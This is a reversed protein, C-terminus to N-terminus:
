FFRLNLGTPCNCAILEMVAEPAPSTDGWDIVLQRDDVRWGHGVPSPIDPNRDLSRRWIACQYNTRKCHNLLSSACPPLQWSEPEAKKACFINVHLVNVSNVATKPSYLSCSLTDLKQISENSLDWSQGLSQLTAMHEEHSLLGLASVKGWGAFSSVTDCGTFSHLGLLCACKDLGHANAAKKVEIYETRTKSGLKFYVPCKLKPTFAM